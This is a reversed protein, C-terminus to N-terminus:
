YVGGGANNRAINSNTAMHWHDAAIGRAGPCKFMTQLFCDLPFFPVGMSRVADEILDCAEWYGNALGGQGIDGDYTHKAPTFVVINQVSSRFHAIAALYEQVAVEMSSRDLVPRDDVLQVHKAFENVGAM